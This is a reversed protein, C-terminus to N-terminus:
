PYTHIHTHIYLYMHGLGQIRSGKQAFNTKFQPLIRKRPLVFFVVLKPRTTEKGKGQKQRLIAWFFGNNGKLFCHRICFRLRRWVCVYIRCPPNRTWWKGRSVSSRSLELDQVFPEAYLQVVVVTHRDQSFRALCRQGPWLTDGVSGNLTHWSRACHGAFGIGLSRGAGM